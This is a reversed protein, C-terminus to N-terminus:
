GLHTSDVATKLGFTYFRGWEEDLLTNEVATKIGCTYFKCWERDWQIAAKLGFTDSDLCSGWKKEMTGECYYQSVEYKKDNFSPMADNVITKEKTFIFKRSTVTGNTL